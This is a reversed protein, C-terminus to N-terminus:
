RSCEDMVLREHLNGLVDRYDSWIPEGRHDNMDIWQWQKREVPYNGATKVTLWRSLGTHHWDPEYCKFVKRFLKM